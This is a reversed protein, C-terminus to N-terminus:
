AASRQANVVHVNCPDNWDSRYSSYNWRSALERFISVIRNEHNRIPIVCRSLLRIFVLEWVGSVFEASHNKQLLRWNSLQCAFPGKNWLDGMAPSKGSVMQPKNQFGFLGCTVCAQHMASLCPSQMHGQPDSNATYGVVAPNQAFKLPSYGATKALKPRENRQWKVTSNSCTTCCSM